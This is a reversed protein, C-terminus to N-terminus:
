NKRNQHLIVTASKKDSARTYVVMMYKVNGSGKEIAHTVVRTDGNALTFAMQLSSDCGGKKILQEPTEVFRVAVTEKGSNEGPAGEAVGEKGLIGEAHFRIPGVKTTIRVLKGNAEDIVHIEQAPAVVSAAKRKLWNVGQLVLVDEMPESKEKDTQWDGPLLKLVEEHEVLGSGM